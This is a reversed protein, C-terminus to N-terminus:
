AHQKVLKTRVRHLQGCFERETLVTDSESNCGLSHTLVSNNTALLAGAFGENKSLEDFAETLFDQYYVSHRPIELGQWWLCQKRKWAKNRAKGRYKAALGVMKCVEIQIHPKDFKLSQLLGEMSNCDVGRFTFPHPAFNSLASSPWGSKSGINM